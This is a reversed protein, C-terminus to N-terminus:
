GSRSAEALRTHPAFHMMTPAGLSLIAVVPHYVPGDQHLQMGLTPNM